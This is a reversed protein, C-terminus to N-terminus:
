PKQALVIQVLGQYTGAAAVVGKTVQDIKLPLTVSSGTGATGVYLTTAKFDTDTTTLAQGNLTVKLPIAPANTNSLHSLQPNGNLRVAIDKAMNNTFIRTPLDIGDLGVGPTYGMVLNQPLLTGDANRLELTDDVNATVTILAEAAMVSTTFLSALLAATTALKM